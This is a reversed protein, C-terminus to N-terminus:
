GSRREPSEQHYGYIAVGQLPREQISGEYEHLRFRGDLLLHFMAQTSSKDDLIDPEFWTRTVGKWRGTLPELPEQISNRSNAGVAATETAM